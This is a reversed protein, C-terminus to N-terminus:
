KLLFVGMVVCGIGAAKALTLHEGFFAVGLIFTVLPYAAALPVVMSAEGNKLATYFFIQGVVAALFGSAILLLMGSHVDLFSERIAKHQWFFLLLVGFLVGLCRWFLGVFPSMKVLGFKELIPVWGWIFATLLAFLFPSM